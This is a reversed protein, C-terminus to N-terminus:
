DSYYAYTTTQEEPQGLAHTDSKMMATNGFVVRRVYGRPDTVDVHDVLPMYGEMCNPDYRNFPGQDFHNTAPNFCGSLLVALVGGRGGTDTPGVSALFHTQTTNATLSWNFLYTSNDAQTQKIVRGAADYQNTLYLIGRADTITLMRNQDDYTYTTVGNAPD